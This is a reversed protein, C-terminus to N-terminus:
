TVPSTLWVQVSSWCINSNWLLRLKDCQFFIIFFKTLKYQKYQCTWTLPWLKECLNSPHLHRRWLKYRRVGQKVHSEATWPKVCRRSKFCRNTPLHAQSILMPVARQRQLTSVKWPKREDGHTKPWWCIMRQISSASKSIKTFGANARLKM